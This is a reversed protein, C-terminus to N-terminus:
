SVKRLTIAATSLIGLTLTIHAVIVRSDFIGRCFDELQFFVNWDTHLSEFIESQNSFFISLPRCIEGFILFLFIGVASATMATAATETHTSVWLGFAIILAGLLNIFCWGGWLIQPTSFHHFQILSPACRRALEPLCLVATWLLAYVSYIAIFKSFIIVFSNVRLVFLSDLLKQARESAIAKTTL